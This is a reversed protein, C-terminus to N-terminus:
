QRGFRYNLALTFGLNHQIDGGWTTLDYTPAIRVALGPGLNVDVPVVAAATFRTANPYLGVLTGPQGASNADFLNRTVGALVQGSIAYSKRQRIYYQPGAMVSYHSIFPKFLASPNIGVYANAYYGRLDATVGLKPGFFRTVGVNWGSENSHQLNHGPRMRLYAYGFYIDYKHSYTDKITAQTRAARRARVRAQAERALRVREEENPYSKQSQSSSNGQQQQAQSLPDRTLPTPQSPQLSTPPADTAPAPSQTQDPSQTPPAGQQPDSTTQARLSLAALLSFTLLPYALYGLSKSCQM